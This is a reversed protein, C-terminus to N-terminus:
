SQGGQGILDEIFADGNIITVSRAPLRRIMEAGREDMFIVESFDLLVKKKQSLLARCEQELLSVWDAHVKGELKLTVPSGNEAM